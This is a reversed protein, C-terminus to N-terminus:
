QNSTTQIAQIFIQRLTADDVGQLSTADVGNEILLQRIEESSLNQLTTLATTTDSVNANASINVNRNASSTNSNTTSNAIAQKYIKLLTTDDAADLTAQPVGAAALAQRLFEPTLDGKADTISTLPRFGECTKGSPCNPDTNKQIEVNDAIRDGDSDKLYPSTHFNYLEDYDTLSDGDTDQTQLKKMEATLAAVTNTNTTNTNAPRFATAGFVSRYIIWGSALFALVGIVFIGRYARPSDLNPIPKKGSVVDVIGNAANSSVRGITSGIKM